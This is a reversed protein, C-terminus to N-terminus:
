VQFYWVSHPNDTLIPGCVVLLTHDNTREGLWRSVTISDGILLAVIYQGNIIIAIIRKRVALIQENCSLNVGSSSKLM